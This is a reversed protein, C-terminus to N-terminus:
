EVGPREDGGEGRGLDDVREAVVDVPEAREAEAEGEQEDGRDADCGAATPAPLRDDTAQEREEAEDVHRGRVDAAEDHRDPQEDDAGDEDEAAEPPAVRDLSPRRTPSSCARASASMADSGSGRRDCIARSWRSMTSAM